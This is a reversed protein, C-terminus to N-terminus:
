RVDGRPYRLAGSKEDREPLADVHAPKGGLNLQEAGPSHRGILGSAARRRSSRKGTARGEVTLQGAIRRHDKTHSAHWTAHSPATVGRSACASSGERSGASSTLIAYSAGAFQGDRSANRARTRERTPVAHSAGGSPGARATWTVTTRSDAFLAARRANTSSFPRGTCRATEPAVHSSTTDAIASTVASAISDRSVPPDSALSPAPTSAAAGASVAVVGADPELGPAGRGSALAPAVLGLAGAVVGDAEVDDAEVDDAEVDLAAGAALVAAVGARDVVAADLGTGGWEPIAGAPLGLEGRRERDTRNSTPAASASAVPADGSSAHPGRPKTPNPHSLPGSIRSPM